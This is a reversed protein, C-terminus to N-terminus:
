HYQRSRGLLSPFHSCLKAVLPTPQLHEGRTKPLSDTRIDMALASPKSAQKSSSSFRMPAYTCPFHLHADWKCVAGPIDAIRCGDAGTHMDRAGGLAGAPHEKGPVGSSRWQFPRLRDLKQVSARLSLSWFSFCAKTHVKISLGTACSMSTHASM